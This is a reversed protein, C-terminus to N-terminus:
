FYGRHPQLVQLAAGASRRLRPSPYLVSYFLSSTAVRLSLPVKITGLMHLNQLDMNWYSTVWSITFSNLLKLVCGLYIIVYFKMWDHAAAPFHLMNSMGPFDSVM